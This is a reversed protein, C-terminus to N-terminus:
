RGGLDCTAVLLYTALPGLRGSRAIATPLLLLLLTFCKYQVYSSLSVSISNANGDSSIGGKRAGRAPNESPPSAEIYNVLICISVIRLYTDLRVKGSM